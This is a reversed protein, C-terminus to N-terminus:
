PENFPFLMCAMYQEAFYPNGGLAVTRSAAAIAQARQLLSTDLLMREAGALAANGLVVARPVWSEPILGIAAASELRLHSGFGGAIYLREVERAELGAHHLLTQVGAAIAGKSLQVSRVDRATLAVGERIEVRDTEMAGTEDVMGLSLLASVADLIGSGCVGVAPAGDLTSARLRGDEVWVADIAGAVSGCGCSIGAGEFAPGAATSAVHLTGAHWLAVEGNTGIDMLLSTEERQCMGSALVACTIDAGVFADMCPPFYVRRGCLEGWVGFLTDAQFPARPLCQPNRGTLLYLMTTNGTVVLTAVDGPSIGAEQCAGRVLEEVCAQVSEELWKGRGQLAAGIRGIVDAAVQGQPNLAARVSLLKGTRLSFLKLAVTTTGVDVAAGYEGAMPAADAKAQAPVGQVEIRACATPPLTIECDGLMLTQCALRTEGAEVGRKDRLAGTARLACKGCVGRGGCPQQVGFGQEALWTGLVPAGAFPVRIMREGCRITATPM